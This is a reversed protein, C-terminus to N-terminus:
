WTLLSVKGSATEHRMWVDSGVDPRFDCEYYAPAAPITIEGAVAGNAPQADAIVFHCATAEKNQFSAGNYNDDGALVKTWVGPTVNNVIGVTKGRPIPM